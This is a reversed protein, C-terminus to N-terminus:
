GLRVWVREIPLVFLLERSFISQTCSLKEDVFTNNRPFDHAHGAVIFPIRKLTQWRSEASFSRLMTFQLRTRINCCVCRRDNDITHHAYSKPKPWSPFYTTNTQVYSRWFFITCKGRMKIVTARCRESPYVRTVYLLFYESWGIEPTNNYYVGGLRYINWIFYVRESFVCTKTIICPILSSSSSFIRGVIYICAARCRALM